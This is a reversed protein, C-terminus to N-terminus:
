SSKRQVLLYAVAYMVLGFAFTVAISLAFSSLHLVGPDGAYLARRVAAVGYYGPNIHAAWFIWPHPKTASFPTGSILWLPILVFNM